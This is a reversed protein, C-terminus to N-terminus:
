RPGRLSVETASLAYWCPRTVILERRRLERVNAATVKSSYGALAALEWLQLWSEDARRLVGLLHQQRPSLARVGAGEGLDHDAARDM